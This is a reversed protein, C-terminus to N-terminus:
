AIFIKFRPAIKIDCESLNHTNQTTISPVKSPNTVLVSQKQLIKDSHSTLSLIRQLFENDNNYKVVRM